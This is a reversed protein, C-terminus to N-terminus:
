QWDLYKNDKGSGCLNLILHMHLACVSGLDIFLLHGSGLTFVLRKSCLQCDSGLHCVRLGEPLVKLLINSSKASSSQLLGASSFIYAGQM